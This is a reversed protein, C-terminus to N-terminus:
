PLYGKEKMYELIESKNREEMRQQQVRLSTTMPGYEKGLTYGLNAVGGWFGSYIAGIGFLLVEYRKHNYTLAAFM